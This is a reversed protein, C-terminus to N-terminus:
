ARGCVVEAAVSQELQADTPVKTGHEAGHFAATAAHTWGDDIWGAQQDLMTADIDLM